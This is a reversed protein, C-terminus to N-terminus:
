LGDDLPATIASNKIAQRYGQVMGDGYICLKELSFSQISIGSWAFQYQLASKKVLIELDTFYHVPWAIRDVPRWLLESDTMYNLDARSVHTTYHADRILRVTGYGEYHILIECGNWRSEFRSPNNHLPLVEIVFFPEVRLEGQVIKLDEQTVGALLQKVKWFMVRVGRM